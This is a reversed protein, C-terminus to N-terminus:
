TQILRRGKPRGGKIIQINEDPWDDEIGLVHALKPGDQKRLRGDVVEANAFQKLSDTLPISAYPNFYLTGCSRNLSYPSLHDFIWVGSVRTYVPGGEGM